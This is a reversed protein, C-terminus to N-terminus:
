SSGVIFHLLDAVKAIDVTVGTPTISAVKSGRETRFGAQVNIQSTTSLYTM